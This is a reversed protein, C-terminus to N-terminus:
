VIREAMVLKTLNKEIKDLGNIERQTEVKLKMNKVIDILTFYLEIRVLYDNDM